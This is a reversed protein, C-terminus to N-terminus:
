FIHSGRRRVFKDAEFSLKVKKYSNYFYNYHVVKYNLTLKFCLHLQIYVDTSM